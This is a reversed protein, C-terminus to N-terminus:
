TAPPRPPTGRARPAASACGARAGGYGAAHLLPPRSPAYHLRYFRGMGRHFAGNARLRRNRGSTGAKVHTAAVSPEYWTTWGAEAFRWCLDLDEMYLWYGEDFLGVEDLARRRMLMFAGSVADVPGRVVDPARYQALAE